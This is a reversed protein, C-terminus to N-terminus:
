QGCSGLDKKPVHLTPRWCRQNAAPDRPIRMLQPRETVGAWHGGRAGSACQGGSRRENKVRTRLDTSVLLPITIIARGQSLRIDQRRVGEGQDNNSRQRNALHELARTVQCFLEQGTSHARLPPPRATKAGPWWFGAWHAAQSKGPVKADFVPRIQWVRFATDIRRLAM